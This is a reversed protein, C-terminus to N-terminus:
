TSSTISSGLASSSGINLLGDLLFDLLWNFFLTIGDASDAVHPKFLVIVMDHSVTAAIEM